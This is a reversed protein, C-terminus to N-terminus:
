GRKSYEYVLKYFVMDLFKLGKNMRSLFPHKSFFDNHWKYLINARYTHIYKSLHREYTKAQNIAFERLFDDRDDPRASPHILQGNGSIAEKVSREEFTAKNLAQAVLKMNKMTNVMMLSVGNVKPIISDGLGWFDAITIDSCREGKAYPCTYCSERFILGSMFATIYNDILFRDKSRRVKVREGYVGELFFGYSLFSGWLIEFIGNRDEKYPTKRRFSVTVDDNKLNTYRLIVKCDDRLLKQSPCGHCCLDVSILNPYDKGLYNRLAGNQCPTGTFLVERGLQLDKKVERYILNINSQVYKSGKLLYLDEKRDIRRHCIDKYSRQVCGYVVGNNEIVSQALLSSAGGSASSMLDEKDKSIVAFAKIPKNLHVPYNVPCVKQCQGCDICLKNNIYPHIDGLVGQPTM